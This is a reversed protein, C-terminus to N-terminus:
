SSTRTLNATQRGCQGAMERDSVTVLPRGHSQRCPNRFPAAILVARPYISNEKPSDYTARVAVIGLSFQVTVRFLQPKRFIRNAIPRPAHFKEQLTQPRERARLKVNLRLQM